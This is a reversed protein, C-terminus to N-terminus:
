PARELRRLAEVVECLPLGVVNTYSGEVAAVLHAAHGQVAYAGAKDRWEETDLYAALEEPRLPKFRVATVVMEGVERGDAAIIWFATIVQHVRGSLRALFREAEARDQPKGLIEGDVVVTTDAALVPRGEGPRRRAAAGRAKAIAVRRVYGQADETDLPREDVESPDVVFTVGASALLERRRPSASALIVNM